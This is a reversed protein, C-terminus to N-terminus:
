IDWNPNKRRALLHDATDIMTRMAPLRTQDMARMGNEVEYIYHTSVKLIQALRRRPMGFKERFARVEIGSVSIEPLSMGNM